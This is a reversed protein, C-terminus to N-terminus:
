LFVGASSHKKLTEVQLHTIKYFFPSVPASTKTKGSFTESNELCVIKLLVTAFTFITIHSIYLLRAQMSINKTVFMLEKFQIVVNKVFLCPSNFITNIENEHCKNKYINKPLNKTTVFGRFPSPM